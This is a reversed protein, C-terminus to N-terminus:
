KWPKRKKLELHDCFSEFLNDMFFYAFNSSFKQVNNEYDANKKLNWTFIFPDLYIIWSFLLLFLRIIKKWNTNLQFLLKVCNLFNFILPGYCFFIRFIPRFNKFIIKMPWQNSGKHIINLQKSVGGGVPESNKAVSSIIGLSCFLIWIFAWHFFIWFPRGKKKFEYKLPIVISYLETPDLDTHWM